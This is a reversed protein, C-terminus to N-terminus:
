PWDWQTTGVRVRDGPRIGAEELAKYVGRAKLRQKIYWILENANGGSGVALHALDAADVNYVGDLASIEPGGDRPSPTFVKESGPPFEPSPLAGLAGAAAGVLEPVGEGTAASIFLVTIGVGDLDQKIEARRAAVEPLDIKNVAVMQPKQGLDKDYLSLEVNLRALDNQPTESAGDLLHVLLRTRMVHRLFEHGLGKGLHAGDILGPIEAMVLAQDGHRVVGLEPQLTTFPYAAVKPKAASVARLLTSKGANPYGIIGVDAIARMELRVELEPGPAGKQYLRPVQNTASAFHVNGRGGRGGRLVRVQQGPLALDALPLGSGADLVVTGAPVALQTLQGNRGHKKRGRGDEGREAQYHGHHRYGLLSTISVDATFVIDGGNGGDGGDPGGLPM